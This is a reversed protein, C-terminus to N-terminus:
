MLEDDWAWAAKKDIVAEATGVAVATAAVAATAVEVQPTAAAAPIDVVAPIDAAVTARTRGEMAPVRVETIRRAEAAVIARAHIDVTTRRAFSRSTCIWSPARVAPTEM